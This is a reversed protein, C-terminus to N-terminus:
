WDKAFGIGCRQVDRWWAGGCTAPAPLRTLNRLLRRLKVRDNVLDEFFPFSFTNSEFTVKWNYHYRSIFCCTNKQISYDSCLLKSMFELIQSWNNKLFYRACISGFCFRYSSNIIKPYWTGISITRVNNNIHIRICTGEIWSKWAYEYSIKMDLKFSGCLQLAVLRLKWPSTCTSLKVTRMNLINSCIPARTDSKSIIHNHISYVGRSFRWQAYFRNWVPVARINQM